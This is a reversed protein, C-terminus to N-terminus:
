FYIGSAADYVVHNQAYPMVHRPPCYQNSGTNHSPCM